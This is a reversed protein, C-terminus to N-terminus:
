KLHKEQVHLQLVCILNKGSLHQLKRASVSLKAATNGKSGFILISKNGKLNLNVWKQFPILCHKEVLEKKSSYSKGRKAGCIGCHFDDVSDKVISVDFDALLDWTIKRFVVRIEVSGSNDIKCTLHRSIGRFALIISNQRKKVVEPKFSFDYRHEALWNYSIGCVTDMGAKGNWWEPLYKM